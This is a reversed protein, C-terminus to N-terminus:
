SLTKLEVAFRVKLNAAVKAITADLSGNPLIPMKEQRM